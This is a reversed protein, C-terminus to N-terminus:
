RAASRGDPTAASRRGSPRWSSRRGSPSCPFGAPATVASSRRDSALGSTSGSCSAASRSARRRRPRSPVRDPCHARDARRRDLRRHVREGIRLHPPCGQAATSFRRPDQGMPDLDVRRDRVAAVAPDGYWVTVGVVAIMLGVAAVSGLKADFVSAPPRRLYRGGRAHLPARQAAADRRLPRQDVRGLHLRLRPGRDPGPEHLREVDPVAVLLRPQRRRPRRRLRRPPRGGAVGQLGIAAAVLASVLVTGATLAWAALLKGVIIKARSVPKALLYVATGDEIEAGLAATGYVLALLPLLITVILGDLLVRAVWRRQDTDESGLRYVLALLIPLLAVLGLLITRGRGLLQRLTLAAIIGIM